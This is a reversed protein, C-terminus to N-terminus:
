MPPYNFESFLARKLNPRYGIIASLTRWHLLETTRVPNQARYLHNTPFGKARDILRMFELESTSFNSLSKSCLDERIIIDLLDQDNDCELNDKVYSFFENHRCALSKYDRQHIYYGGCYRIDQYTHYQQCSWCTSEGMAGWWVDSVHEFITHRKMNKTEFGCILCKRLCIQSQMESKNLNLNAELRDLMKQYEQSNDESYTPKSDQLRLKKIGSSVGDLNKHQHYNESSSDEDHTFSQEHDSADSDSDFFDSARKRKSTINPKPLIKSEISSKSVNTDTSEITEMSDNVNLKRKVDKFRSWDETINSVHETDKSNIHDIKINSIKMEKSESQPTSMDKDNLNQKDSADEDNNCPTEEEMFKHKINESSPPTDAGANAEPSQISSIKTDNDQATTQVEMDSESNSCVKSENVVKESENLVRKSENGSEAKKAGLQCQWIVKGNYFIVQDGFSEKLQLLNQLWLKRQLTYTSDTGLAEQDIEILEFSDKSNTPQPSEPRTYTQLLNGIRDCQEKLHKDVRQLTSHSKLIRDVLQTPELQEAEEPDELPPTKPSLCVEDPEEPSDLEPSSMTPTDMPQNTEDVDM